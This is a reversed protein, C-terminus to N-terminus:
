ESCFFRTWKSTQAVCTMVYDAWERQVEDSQNQTYTCDNTKSWKSAFALNKDEVIGKMYRM